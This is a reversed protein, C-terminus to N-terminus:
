LFIVQLPLSSTLRKEKIELYLCKISLRSPFLVFITVTKYVNYVGYETDLNSQLVFWATYDFQKLESLKHLQRPSGTDSLALKKLRRLIRVIKAM